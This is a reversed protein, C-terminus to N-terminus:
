ALRRALTEAIKRHTGTLGRTQAIGEYPKRSDPKILTGRRVWVDTTRILYNTTLITAGHALLFELIRHLKESNRSYRSLASTVLVRGSDQAETLMTILRDDFRPDIASFVVSEDGQGASM